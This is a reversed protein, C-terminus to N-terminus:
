KYLNAIRLISQYGNRLIIELLDLYNLLQQSNYLNMLDQKSFTKINFIKISKEAFSERSQLLNEKLYLHKDEEIGIRHKEENMLYIAFILSEIFNIITTTNIYNSKKKNLNILYEEIICEKLFYVNKLNEYFLQPWIGLEACLKIITISGLDLYAFANLKKIYKENKTLRM